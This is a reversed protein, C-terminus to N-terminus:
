DALARLRDPYNSVIADVGCAAMRKIENRTNATWAAVALDAKHAAAVGRETVCTKKPLIAHAHIEVAQEIRSGNGEESYLLGTPLHKDAAHIEQLAVADFSIIVVHEAFDEKQVIQIVSDALSGGNGPQTKLEILLGMRHRRGSLRIRFHSLVEELTLIRQHALRPDYWGGADFTKLKNLTLDRVLGEGNTTRDVSADHIVVVENDKTLQVDMEICDAGRRIAEEFSALTNEPAYGMAGRHGVILFPAERPWLTMM